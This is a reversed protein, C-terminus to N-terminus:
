DVQLGGGWPRRGCVSGRVGLLLKVGLSDWTEINLRMNNRKKKQVFVEWEFPLLMWFSGLSSMVHSIRCVIKLFIVVTKEDLAWHHSM